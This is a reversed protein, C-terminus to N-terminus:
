SIAFIKDKDIRIRNKEIQKDNLLIRAKRSKTINAVFHISYDLVSKRWFVKLYHDVNNPRRNTLFLVM